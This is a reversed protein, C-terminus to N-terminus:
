RLPPHPNDTSFQVTSALMLYHHEDLSLGRILPDSRAKDTKPDTPHTTTRVTKTTQTKIATDGQGM